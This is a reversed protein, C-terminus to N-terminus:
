LKITKLENEVIKLTNSAGLPPHELKTQVHFVFLAEGQIQSAKLVEFHEIM